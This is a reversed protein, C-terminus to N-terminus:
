FMTMRWGLVKILGEDEVNQTASKRHNETLLAKDKEGKGKVGWPRHESQFIPWRRSQYGNLCECSQQHERKREKRQQFEPRWEFSLVLCLKTSIGKLLFLIGNKTNGYVHLRKQPM